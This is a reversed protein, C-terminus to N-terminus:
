RYKVTWVAIAFINDRLTTSINSNGIWVRQTKTANYFIYSTKFNGHHFVVVKKKENAKGCNQQCWDWELLLFWFRTKLWTKFTWLSSKWILIMSCVDSDNQYWDQNQSLRHLKEKKQEYYNAWIKNRQNIKEGINNGKM